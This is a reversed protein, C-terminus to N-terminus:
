RPPGAADVAALLDALAHGADHRAGNLYLTPTGNVGSRVGGVFQDRIKARHAGEAVDRAVAGADAGSGAAAEAEIGPAIRDQNAFLWDHVAWFRDGAAEALEAAYGAHPHLNTVPFHRYVLRILGPREDLLRRLVPNAAACHPCQYDGYEVITVPASWDGRVQDSQDVPVALRPGAPSSM